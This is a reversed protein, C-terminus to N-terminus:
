FMPRTKPNRPPIIVVLFINLTIIITFDTVSFRSKKKSIEWEVKLSVLHSIPTLTFFGPFHSSNVLIRNRM